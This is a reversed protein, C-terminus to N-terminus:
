ALDVCATIWGHGYNNHKFYFGFENSNDTNDVYLVGDTDLKLLITQHGTTADLYILIPVYKIRKPRFSLKAVAVRNGIPNPQSPCISGVILGNGSDIRSRLARGDNNMGFGNFYEAIEWETNKPIEGVRKLDGLNVTGISSCKATRTIYAPRSVSDEYVANEVTEEILIKANDPSAEFPLLEGNVVIAGATRNNGVLECGYLILNDGFTKCLHQIAESYANQMFEFMKKKVPFGQGQIELKDM